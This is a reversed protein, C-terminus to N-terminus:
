LRLGIDPRVRPDVEGIVATGAEGPDGVIEDGQDATHLFAAANHNKGNNGAGRQGMPMGGMMPPAGMGASEIPSGLANPSASHTQPAALSTVSRAPGTLGGVKVPGPVAGSGAGPGGTRGPPPLPTTDPPGDTQGHQQATGQQVAGTVAGVGEMVPSAMSTALQMMPGIAQGLSAGGLGGLSGGLASREGTAGVHSLGQEMSTLPVPKGVGDVETTQAGLTNQTETMVEGTETVAENAAEIAAAMGWPFIINPGIAEIKAAFESIVTMLRARAQQVAAAAVTASQKLGDAQQSIASGDKLAAATKQGAASASSGQWAQALQSLAPAVSEGASEVAQSIGSFIQTPDFNGFQGSGLTGLADTVPQILQTPDFPSGGGGLPPAAPPPAPSAAGDANPAHDPPLGPTIPPLGLRKLIDGIPQNLYDALNTEHADIITGPDIHPM